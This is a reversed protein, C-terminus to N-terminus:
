WFGYRSLFAFLTLAMAAGALLIVASIALLRMRLAAGALSAAALYSVLNLAYGPTEIAFSM